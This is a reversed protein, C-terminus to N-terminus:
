AAATAMAPNGQAAPEPSTMPSFFVRNRSVLILVLVLCSLTGLVTAAQIGVRAAIMGMPLAGLPMLGWTLMYTGMVRCRIDDTVLHQLLANNGSMFYSGTLRAAFLVPLSLWLVQSLAFTTLILCYAITLGVLRRGIGSQNRTGAVL